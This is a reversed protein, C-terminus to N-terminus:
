VGCQADFAAAESALRDRVWQSAEDVLGEGDIVTDGVAERIENWLPGSFNFQDATVKEPQLNGCVSQETDDAVEEIVSSSTASTTQCSTVTLCAM